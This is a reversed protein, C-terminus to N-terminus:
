QCREWKRGPGHIAYCVNLVDSLPYIREALSRARAYNEYALAQRSHLAKNRPDREWALYALVFRKSTERCEILLLPM